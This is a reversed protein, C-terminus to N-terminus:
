PDKFSGLDWIQIRDRDDIETIKFKDGLNFILYYDTLWFVQNIKESFRSILQLDGAKKPSEILIDKLYLVWVEYDNFFMLKKKDQSFKLDKVPEFVKEFIKSDYNFKFLVNDEKM